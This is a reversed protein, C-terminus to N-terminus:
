LSANNYIIIAFLFMYMKGLLSITTYDQLAKFRVGQPHIHAGLFCFMRYNQKLKYITKFCFHTEFLDDLFSNAIKTYTFPTM